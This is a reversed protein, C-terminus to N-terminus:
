EEEKGSGMPDGGSHEVVRMNLPVYHVDGGDYPSMDNIQLGQNPTLIGAFILKELVEARTKADTQLL